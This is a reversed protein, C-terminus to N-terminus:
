KDFRRLTIQLAWPTLHPGGERLRSILPALLIAKSQTNSETQNQRQVGSFVSELMASLSEVLGAATRVGGGGGGGWGVGTCIMNLDREAQFDILWSVM